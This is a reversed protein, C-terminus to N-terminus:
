ERGNSRALCQPYGDGWDAPLCQKIREPRKTLIQWTHWPTNKITAWARERWSDAQEIFFDSMSCTFILKPEKDFYPAYFYKDSARTVTSGNEGKGEKIRHMYCFKCGDSVKTCGSWFNHTSETWQINSKLM